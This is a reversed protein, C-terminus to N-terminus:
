SSGAPGQPGALERVLAVFRGAPDSREPGGLYHDAREPRVAALPDPGLMADLVADLEVLDRDIVYASVATPHAARFAEAADPGGFQAAYMAFPKESAMFDVVIGSIDSVMADCGNFAEILPVDMADESLVHARGSAKADDALMRDVHAIMAEAELHNRGAFHRRFVVTCGRALLAAVVDEAVALSSVNLADDAHRWTPAYLVTPTAPLPGAAREIGETQPRGVVRLKAAPVRLGAQAFRDIAAQGAVAIVDYSLVRESASLPKDSDGHGLFVHTVEDHALFVANKKAGHPYLAGRVTAPLHTLIVPDHPHLRVLEAYITRDSAVICWPVDTQEIWPSWMGVHVGVKGAYPVAVRPAHANVAQRVGRSATAWAHLRWAVAAPGLALVVAVVLAVVDQSTVLAVITAVATGVVLVGAAAAWARLRFPRRGPHTPQGPFGHATPAPRQRVDRVAALGTALGAAVVIWALVTLMAGPYLDPACAVGSPVPTTMGVFWSRYDTPPM